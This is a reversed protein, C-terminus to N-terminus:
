VDRIMENPLFTRVAACISMPYTPLLLAFSGESVAYAATYEIRTSHHPDTQVIIYGAIYSEAWAVVFLSCRATSRSPM